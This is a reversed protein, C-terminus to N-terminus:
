VRFGGFNGKADDSDFGLPLPLNPDKKRQKINWRTFTKSGGWGTSMALWSFTCRGHDLLWSCVNGSGYVGILYASQGQGITSFGDAIGRFYDNIMGSIQGSGPKETADYDVAFYIPTAKPQGVAMAQKYASTGEDVGTSYSFHSAHNSASEWVVVTDLGASSLAKAEPATLPAYKSVKTRYYRCVFDIGKARLMPGYKQVNYPSDLGISM